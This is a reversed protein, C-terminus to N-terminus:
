EPNHSQDSWTVQYLSFIYSNVMNSPHSSKSHRLRCYKMHGQGWKWQQTVKYYKYPIVKFDMAWYCM